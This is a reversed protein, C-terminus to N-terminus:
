NSEQHMFWGPAVTHTAYRGGSIEGSGQQSYLQKYDDKYAIKQLSIM